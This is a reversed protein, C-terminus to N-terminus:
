PIATSTTSGSSIMGLYDFRHCDPRQLLLDLLEVPVMDKDLIVDAAGTEYM